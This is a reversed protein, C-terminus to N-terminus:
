LKAKEKKKSSEGTFYSFWGKKPPKPNAAERKQEPSMYTKDIYKDLDIQEKM